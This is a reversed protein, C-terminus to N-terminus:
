GRAAVRPEYAVLEWRVWDERRRTGMRDLSNEHLYDGTWERVVWRNVESAYWLDDLRSSGFRFVDPYAFFIRRQVHLCDFTGAATTVREVGVAKLRQDWRYRGSYGPVTYSTRESITEGPRLAQPLLPVPEAFDLPLDYTPEHIVEWPGAYREEIPADPRAIAGAQTETPERQVSCVLVPEIATVTVSTRSVPLRSYRNIEQYVWRDGLSVRPPEFRVSSAAPSPSTACGAVGLAPLAIGAAGALLINRRGASAGRLHNSRSANM